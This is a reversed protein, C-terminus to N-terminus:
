PDDAGGTCTAPLGCSHTELEAHIHNNRGFFVQLWLELGLLDSLGWSVACHPGRIRDKMRALDQKLAAGKLYGFKVALEEAQLCQVLKPYDQEMGENVLHSFDAKWRRERIAEPLVGRLAERLIGKPVGKWAQMDGPISMVFSVLDRDLFPFATELGYRSALKNNWELCLGYYRSRAEAYLARAYTTPFRGGAHPQHSAFRRARTWMGETYGLRSQPSRTLNARLRRLWPILSEPVHRKMLGRVFNRRFQRPDVDTCWRGWETLRARVQGWALHDFLDYLYGPTFLFQDGWHGTLLVRAGRSHATQLLLQTTNWQNDMFPSEASWVADRCGQLSGLRMPIREIAIGYAREIELLFAKEDSPTGDASTYSIGLLPPAHAPDRQRLTEALCLISSSDLGGSVSVAVPHASRLRRRVAQEFHHRFAEAYDPFSKFRTQRVPDFDWYQRTGFEHPTLIALHSPPLSFVGQFFTTGQSDLAGALLFGALCDDHPKAAVLPHALLAKIESAFLFLDPSRYYYLPRIGIADRALLLRQRKPDFLGLAFDGTLREPFRDGFAEYAALVLAPDPSATSIDSLSKLDKLIEERNDLRGDFVVVAGSPHVLPQIETSSEPTVRFLRSALGVSGQVWLGEADPGRHALTRSLGALTGNGVPRGDLHWMGVIGSM